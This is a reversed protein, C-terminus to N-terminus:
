GEQAPKSPLASTQVRAALEAAAAHEWAELLDEIPTVEDPGVWADNETAALLEDRQRDCWAAATTESCLLNDLVYDVHAAYFESVALRWAEIHQARAYTKRLAVVEKRVVRGAIALTLASARAESGDDAPPDEAPAAPAPTPPQPETGAPVMNLPQLPEDLNDLPNLGEKARAENRTLWGGNVGLQYYTARSQMDGRALRDMDYEPEIDEDPGLLQDEYAAEFCEALERMTFKEFELSLREINNDTARDLAFALHPPVGFWRCIDAVKANKAELMQSDKNNIGLEHYKMGSELVATKGRNAGAQSRQWSEIWLRKAEPTAFKSPYEIWGGMPRADNRFFRASYDQQALGEGVSESALQMPNLGTYGNASIGSIKFVSGPPLIEETGDNLKHRYRFNGSSNLVEVSMRDPNMPILEAIDGSGNSIIRNYGTGRLALHGVMMQHWEFSNQFRNPKKSLVRYLPHDKVRKRGKGDPRYFCLPLSSMTGALVRVCRYVTSLRLAQDASVRVGAASRMTVPEFWFDGYASRDDAGDARFLSAFM